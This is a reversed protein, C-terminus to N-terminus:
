RGIYNNTAHLASQYCKRLRVIAMKMPEYRPDSAHPRGDPKNPYM